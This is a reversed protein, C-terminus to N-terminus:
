GLLEYNPKLGFNYCYGRVPVSMPMIALVCSRWFADDWADTLGEWAGYAMRWLGHAMGNIDTGLIVVAIEAAASCGCQGSRGIEPGNDPKVSPV